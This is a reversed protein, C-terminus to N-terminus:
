LARMRIRDAEVVSFHGEWDSRANITATVFRATEEPTGMLVRFLVIGCSAATGRAFVLEGFDKDFTLLIRREALAKALVDDDTAGPADSRVWGVDHGASRLADVAVRPFNENALLRM